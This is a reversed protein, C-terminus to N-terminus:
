QKFYSAFQKYFHEGLFGRLKDRCRTTQKRIAAHSKNMQEAIKKLSKEEYYFLKIINKCDDCLKNIADRILNKLEEQHLDSETKEEDQFQLGDIPMTSEKQRVRLKYLKIKARKTFYYGLNGYFLKNQILDKRIELLADITCTHAYDASTKEHNILYNMCRKFHSLYIKEILSEDGNRLQTCLTKFETRSLGLNKKRHAETTSALECEAETLHQLTKELQFEASDFNSQLLQKQLKRYVDNLIDKAQDKLLPYHDVLWQNLGITTPSEIWKQFTQTEGQRLDMQIKAIQEMGIKLQGIRTKSTNVM